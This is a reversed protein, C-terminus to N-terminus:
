TTLNTSPFLVTFSYFCKRPLIRPMTRTMLLVYFLRLVYAKYQNILEEFAQPDRALFGETEDHCVKVVEKGYMLLLSLFM